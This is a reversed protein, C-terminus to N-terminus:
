PRTIKLQYTACSPGMTSRQVRIFIPDPWPVMSDGPPTCCGPDDDVFTWSTLVTAAGDTGGSTCPVGGADCQNQVVDFFFQDGENVEFEITPTGMGPRAAALPFAVTYWDIGNDAPINGVIGMVTDGVGVPGLDTPLNCNGSVGDDPCMCGDDIEDNCNEDTGDCTEAAAPNVNPDDDDCDEGANCNLGYGDQDADQCLAGNDGGEGDGDVLGSGSGGDQGGFTGLGGGETPDAADGGGGPGFGSLSGDGDVEGGAACASGVLALVLVVARSTTARVSASRSAQKPEARM